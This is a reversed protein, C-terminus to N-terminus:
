EGRGSTAGGNPPTGIVSKLNITGSSHSGNRFVWVCNTFSHSLITPMFYPPAQGDTKIRRNQHPPRWWLVRRVSPWAPFSCVAVGCMEKHVFTRSGLTLRAHRPRDRCQVLGKLARTLDHTTPAIRSDNQEHRTMSVYTLM